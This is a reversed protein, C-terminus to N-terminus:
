ENEVTMRLALEFSASGIGSPQESVGVSIEREEVVPPEGVGPCTLRVSISM